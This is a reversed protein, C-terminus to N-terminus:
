YTIFCNFLNIFLVNHHWQPWNDVGRLRELPTFEEISLFMIGFLTLYSVLRIQDPTSYWTSGLNKIGPYDLFLRSGALRLRRENYEDWWAGGGINFDNCYRPLWKGFLPTLFVDM